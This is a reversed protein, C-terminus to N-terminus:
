PGAHDRVDACAQELPSPWSASIAEWGRELGIEWSNFLHGDFVEGMRQHLDLAPDAMPDSSPLEPM